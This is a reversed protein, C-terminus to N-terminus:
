RAEELIQQCDAVFQAVAADVSMQGYAILENTAKIASYIEVTGSPRPQPAPIDKLTENLLETVRVDLPHLLDQIGEQVATSGPIGQECNFIRNAEIDNVFFDVVKVAEEINKSTPSVSLYAGMVVEGHPNAQGPAIPLRAIALTDEMNNQYIKTQNGAVCFMAVVKAIIQSEEKPKGDFEATVSYPPVVGAQRMDELWQFYGIADDKGFNLSGGEDTLSKGFQRLYSEFWAGDTSPDALPYMGEPLKGSDVVAKLYATFEDWSMEDGPLGLGVEDLVTKNYELVPTSLGMAVMYLKGEITGAALASENFNSMDLVGSEVYPTLDVAANQGVFSHLERDTFQIVDPPNGGALQTSYKIWYDNWESYERIITVNPNLEQYRDYIANMMDNRAAGGWWVARLEVPAESAWGSGCAGLMMALTLALALTRLIRRQTM